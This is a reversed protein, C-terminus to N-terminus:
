GVYSYLMLRLNLFHIGARPCNAFAALTPPSIAWAAEHLEGVSQSSYRCLYLRAFKPQMSVRSPQM